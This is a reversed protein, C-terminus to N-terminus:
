SRLWELLAHTVADPRELASLHGCQPVSVLHAGAIADAMEAAREPPTLEDSDGVLVLTPCRIGALMPRSDARGIIAAQQRAFGAPGLEQAMLRNLGRLGADARRTAHVMRAFQADAM